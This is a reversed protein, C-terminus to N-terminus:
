FEIVIPEGNKDFGDMSYQYRKIKEPTSEIKKLVRIYEILNTSQDPSM